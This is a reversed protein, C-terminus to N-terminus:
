WQWFLLLLLLVISVVLLTLFVMVFIIQTKLKIQSINQFDGHKLDWDGNKKKKQAPPRTEFVRSKCPTPTLLDAITIMIDHHGTKFFINTNNSSIDYKM